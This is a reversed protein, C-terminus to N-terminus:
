KEESDIGREASNVSLEDNSVTQKCRRVTWAERTMMEEKSM